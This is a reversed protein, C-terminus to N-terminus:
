LSGAAGVLLARLVVPQLAPDGATRVSRWRVGFWSAAFGLFSALIVQPEALGLKEALLASALLGLLPFLYVLLSGRV